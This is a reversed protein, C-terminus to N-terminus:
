RACRVIRVELDTVDTSATLAALIKDRDYHLLAATKPDCEVIACGWRIEAVTGPYGLTTLEAVIIDEATTRDATPTIGIGKLLGALAEHMGNNQSTATRM